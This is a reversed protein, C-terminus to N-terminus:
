RLALTNVDQLVFSAGRHFPVGIEGKYVRLSSIALANQEQSVSIMVFAVETFKRAGVVLSM